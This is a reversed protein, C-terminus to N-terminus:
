NPQRCPGTLREAWPMIGAWLRPSEQCEGRRLFRSARLDICLRCGVPIGFLMIIRRQVRCASFCGGYQVFNEKAKGSLQFVYALWGNTHQIVPQMFILQWQINYDGSSDRTDDLGYTLGRGLAYSPKALVFELGSPYYQFFLQVSTTVTKLAVPNISATVLMSYTRTHTPCLSVIFSARIDAAVTNHLIRTAVLTASMDFVHIGTTLHVLWM